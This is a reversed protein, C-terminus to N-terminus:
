GPVDPRTVEYTAQMHLDHVLIASLGGVLAARM